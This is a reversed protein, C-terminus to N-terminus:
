KEEKGALADRAVLIIREYAADYEASEHDFGEVEELEEPTKQAALRNLTGRLREVEAQRKEEGRLVGALFAPEGVGYCNSFFPFKEKLWARAALDDGSSPAKAQDSM